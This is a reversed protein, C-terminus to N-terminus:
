NLKRSSPLMKKRCNKLMDLHTFNQLASQNVKQGNGINKSNKDEENNGKM